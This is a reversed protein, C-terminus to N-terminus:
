LLQANIENRFKVPDVIFEFTNTVGGTTVVVAGFGLIRGLVSQTVRLGECKNLSLELADRSFFGSKLVVKKNTVVYEAGLKLFTRTVLQLVGLLILVVPCVFIYWHIDARYKIEEGAQLNNQIYSM